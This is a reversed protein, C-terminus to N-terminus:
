ITLKSLKRQGYILNVLGRSVVVSSFISTLIGLCQVVAFGRIPGSGFILLALGAIFLIATVWSLITRFSGSAGEVSLNGGLVFLVIALIVALITYRAGWLFVFWHQKERHVIREGTSLLGDAYAM